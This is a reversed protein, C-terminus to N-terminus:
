TDELCDEELEDRRSSIIAKCTMVTTLMTLLLQEIAAPTFVAKFANHCQLHTLENDTSGSKRSYISGKFEDPTMYYAFTTFPKFNALVLTSLSRELCYVGAPIRTVLLHLLLQLYQALFPRFMFPYYNMMRSAQEMM